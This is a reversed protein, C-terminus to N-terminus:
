RQALAVTLLLARQTGRWSDTADFSEGPAHANAGAGGGGIQVAPIGLSTPYNADSSSVTSLPVAGVARTAAIAAQVVVSGAPTAGAPRDGVVEKTM